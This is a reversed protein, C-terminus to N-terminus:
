RKEKTLSKLLETLSVISMMLVECIMFWKKVTRMNKRMINRKMINRKMINRKMIIKKLM